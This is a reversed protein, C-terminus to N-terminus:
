GPAQEYGVMGKAVLEESFTKIAGEADPPVENCVERLESVIEALTHKGDFHKWCFVGIPNLAYAEGTDPDFLIACDDFEERLVVDPNCMPKQGGAM